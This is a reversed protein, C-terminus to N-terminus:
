IATGTILCEMEDERHISVGLQEKFREYYLHAGGGTAKIVFEHGPRNARSEDLLRRIFAVCEDIKETEFKRFNLRGGKTGTKRSFYVM